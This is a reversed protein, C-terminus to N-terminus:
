KKPWKKRPKRRSTSPVENWTSGPEKFLSAGCRSCVTRLVKGDNYAQRKSRHHVGMWCLPRVLPSYLIQRQAARGLRRAYLGWQM